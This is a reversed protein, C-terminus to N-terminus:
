KVAKLLTKIPINMEESIISFIRKTITESVLMLSQEDEIKDCMAEIKKSPKIVNKKGGGYNITIYDEENLYQLMDYENETMEGNTIYLVVDGASDIKNDLIFFDYDDPGFGVAQGADDLPLDTVVIFTNQYDGAAECGEIEVKDEIFGAYHDDDTLLLTDGLYQCVKWLTYIFPRKDVDGIVSIVM